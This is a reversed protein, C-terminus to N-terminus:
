VKRLTHKLLAPFPLSDQLLFVPALFTPIQLNRNPTPFLWEQHLFFVFLAGPCKWFCSLKCSQRVASEPNVPYFLLCLLRKEVFAAQFIQERLKEYASGAM